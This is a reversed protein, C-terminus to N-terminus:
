KSAGNKKEEVQYEIYNMIFQTLASVSYINRLQTQLSWPFAEREKTNLSMFFAEGQPVDASLLHRYETPYGDNEKLYNIALDSTTTM